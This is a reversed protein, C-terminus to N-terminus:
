KGSQETFRSREPGDQHYKMMEQVLDASHVVGHEEELLDLIKSLAATGFIVTEEQKANRGMDAYAASREHTYRGQIM